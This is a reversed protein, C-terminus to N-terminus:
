YGITYFVFGAESTVVVTKFFKRFYIMNIGRSEIRETSIVMDQQCFLGYYRSDMVLLQGTPNFLQVENGARDDYGVWDVIVPLGFASLRHGVLALPHGSM